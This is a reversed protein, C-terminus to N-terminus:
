SSKLRGIRLNEVLVSHVQLDKMAVICVTFYMQTNNDFVCFVISLDQEKLLINMYEVLINM